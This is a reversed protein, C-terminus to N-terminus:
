EWNYRCGQLGSISVIFGVTPILIAALGGTAFMAIGLAGVALGAGIASRTCDGGEIQEMETLNLDRM